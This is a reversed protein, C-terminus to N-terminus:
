TKGTPINKRISMRTGNRWVWRQYTTYLVQALGHALGHVPKHVVEHVVM